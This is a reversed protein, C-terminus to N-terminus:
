KGREAAELAVSHKRKSFIKPKAAKIASRAMDFEVTARDILEKVTM